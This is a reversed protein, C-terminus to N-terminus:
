RQNEWEKELEEFILYYASERIYGELRFMFFYIYPMVIDGAM